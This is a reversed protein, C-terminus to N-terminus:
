LLRIMLGILATLIQCFTWCIVWCFTSEYNTAFVSDNEAMIASRSERM